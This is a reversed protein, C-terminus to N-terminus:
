DGLPNSVTYEAVFEFSAVRLPVGNETDDSDFAAASVDFFDCLGGLQRDALVAVGIPAIMASLDADGNDGVPMVAEVPIRHTYIYALPSLEYEPEGPDGREGIIAGNEDIIDPKSADETFGSVIANPAAATVLAKIAALVMDAHAM